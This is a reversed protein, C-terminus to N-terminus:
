PLARRIIERGTARDVLELVKPNIGEKQLKPRATDQPNRIWLHFPGSALQLIMALDTAEQPSVEITITRYSRTPGKSPADTDYESYSHTGLAIIQVREMITLVEPQSGGTFFPAEIDVYMGQQLVGPLSASNVPLAILRKGSEVETARDDLGPTRFLTHRVLDGTRSPRMITDRQSVHLAMEDKGIVQLRDFSDKFREPVLQAQIDRAQLTDGPQVNRTLVYVEFASENVQRRIAEIYINTLLVVVVAIVLAIIVLKTSGAQPPPTPTRESM